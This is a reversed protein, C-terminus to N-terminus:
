AVVQLGHWFGGPEPWHWLSHLTRMQRRGDTLPNANPEAQRQKNRVFRM